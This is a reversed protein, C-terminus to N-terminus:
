ILAKVATLVPDYEPEQSLEQVNQIYTIKGSRDAVLVARALLRLEKILLGYALGFSAERHDSLTKLQDVGAAGCWRKQAFPLDMSITLITVEPGLGAAENNFRRTQLDCVPTDLSPVVSIVLVKGIFDSIKVPNLDNDLVVAEPLQDGVKVENGTLTLPNGHMTVAGTRDSM